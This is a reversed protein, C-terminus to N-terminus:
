VDKLSQVPEIRKVTEEKEKTMEIGKGSVMYSHFQIQHQVWDCKDPAIYLWNDKLRWLVEITYNHLEEHM